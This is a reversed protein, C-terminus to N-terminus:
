SMTKKNHFLLPYPLGHVLTLYETAIEAHYPVEPAFLVLNSRKDIVEEYPNKPLPKPTLTM